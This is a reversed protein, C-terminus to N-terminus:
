PPHWFHQLFVEINGENAEDMLSQAPSQCKSDLNLLVGVDDGIGLLYIRIPRFYELGWLVCVRTCIIFDLIKGEEEDWDQKLPLDAFIPDHVTKFENLDKM